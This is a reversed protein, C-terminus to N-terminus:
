GDYGVRDTMKVAEARNKAIEDFGIMDKKFTGWPKLSDALEIGEKVPYEGNIQTFMNQAKDGALFEMLKLATSKNKAHLTMAMGSINTHTGRDDQNPFVVNISDAWHKQEENKIMKQMYYHNIIAVDCVGEKIAKVQARDNGQPKRALNNKLGSLWKEAGDTGLHTIMTATLSTMYANKGSRTCVRGKWKPDTLDEYRKIEGPKVRDKSAVIFRARETLGFWFSDKDKAYAPIASELLPSRVAQILNAQKLDELRGFGVTLIVDAKTNRSERKLRELLGKKAHVVNVKIGSTETFADFMPQILAPKRYSYVNVEEAAIASLSFIISLILLTSKM